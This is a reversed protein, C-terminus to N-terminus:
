EVLGARDFLARCAGENGVRKWNQPPIAIAHASLRALMMERLPHFYHEEQFSSIMVKGGPKVVSAIHALQADMDDVFFIGFACLAVDFCDAPFGLATMDRELFAVNTIGQVAAKSRARELMGASFDVATVRGNPLMRAMALSAHGTGCAVDLAHEDGHLDLRAVMSQASQPFFRLAGGDYGGSVTDFTQKLMAKRQLEDM